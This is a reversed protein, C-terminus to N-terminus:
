LIPKILHYNDLHVKKNVYIHNDNYSEVFVFDKAELLEKTAVATTSNDMTVDVMVMYVPISFDFSRLVNVEHGEVDVILM